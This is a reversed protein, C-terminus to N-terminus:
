LQDIGGPNEFDFVQGSLFDLLATVISGLPHGKAGEETLVHLGSVRPHEGDFARVQADNHSAGTRMAPDQKDAQRAIVVPKVLGAANIGRIVSVQM